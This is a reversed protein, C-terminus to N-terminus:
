WKSWKQSENAQKSFQSPFFSGFFPKAPAPRIIGMDSLLVQQKRHTTLHHFSLAHAAEGLNNRLHWKDTVQIAQPAGLRAATAYTDSRDRSIIEISPDQKLWAAV